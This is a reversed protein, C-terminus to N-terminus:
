HKMTSTHLTGLLAAIASLGKKVKLADAISERWVTAPPNGILCASNAM